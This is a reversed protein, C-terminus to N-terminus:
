ACRLAGSLDAGHEAGLTWGEEATVPGSAAPWDAVIGRDFGSM